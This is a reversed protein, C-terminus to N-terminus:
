TGTAGIRLISCQSKCLSKQAEPSKPHGYYSKSPPPPRGGERCRRPASALARPRSGPYSVPWPHVSSGPFRSPPNQPSWYALIPPSAGLIGKYRGWFGGELNGPKMTWGQGTDYGPYKYLASLGLTWSAGYPEM